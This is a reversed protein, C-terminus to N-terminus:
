WPRDRGLPVPKTWWRGSWRWRSVSGDEGASGASTGGLVTLAAVIAATEEETADPTIRSDGM